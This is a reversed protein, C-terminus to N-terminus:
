AAPSARPVPPSRPRTWSSYERGQQGLAVRHVPRPRRRRDRPSTRLHPATPRADPSEPRAPPPPSSHQAIPLPMASNATSSRLAPTEAPGVPSRRRPPDRSGQMRPRASRTLDVERDRATGHKAGYAHETRCGEGPGPRIQRTICAAYAASRSLASAGPGAGAPWPPSAQEAGGCIRIVGGAGIQVSAPGHIGAAARSSAFLPGRAATASLRRDRSLTFTVTGDDGGAARPLPLVFPASIAITSLGLPIPIAM